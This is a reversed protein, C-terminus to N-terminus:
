PDPVPDESSIRFIFICFAFAVTLLKLREFGAQIKKAAIGPPPYGVKRRTQLHL